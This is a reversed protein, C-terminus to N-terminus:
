WHLTFNALRNTDLKEDHGVSSRYTTSKPAWLVPAGRAEAVGIPEAWRTASERVQRYRWSQYKTLRPYCRRM